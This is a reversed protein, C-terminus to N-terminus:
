RRPPRVERGYADLIQLAHLTKIARWECTTAESPPQWAISWGGDPQQDRELRDLHAEILEDSFWARWPSAPSTAYDLPTLGYATGDPDARYYECSELAAVVPDVLGAVRAQDPAHELLHLVCKITHAETPPGDRELTSFCWETARERWPHEFDLAHLYGAIAATPNLDPEYEDTQAWHVARPFGAISPLVVPVAGEPSAVADLFDCARGVMDGADDAVAGVTTLRELAIETDLPQSFPSRKDPELGHGFGGDANQYAAVATVVSAPSGDEFVAAYVLEELLRANGYIFDRAAVANVV